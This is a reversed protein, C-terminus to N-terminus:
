PQVDAIPHPDRQRTTFANNRQLAERRAKFVDHHYTAVLEALQRGPSDNPDAAHCDRHRVSWDSLLCHLWTTAPKAAAESLELQPGRRRAEARVRMQQQHTANASRTLVRSESQGASGSPPLPPLQHHQLVQSSSAKPAEPAPLSTCLFVIAFLCSVDNFDPSTAVGVTVATTSSEAAFLQLSQVLAARRDQHFSCTLLTHEITEPWYVGDVGDICPCLYCARLEEEKLQPFKTQVQQTGVRATFPRRRVAGENPAADARAQIIRRALSMRLFLYPELFSKTKIRMYRRLETHQRAAEAQMLKDVEQQRHHNARIRLSAFTALRLQESWRNLAVLWQTPDPLLWFTVDEKLEVAPLGAPVAVCIRAREVTLPFLMLFVFVFVKAATSRIPTWVGAMQVHMEVLSNCFKMISDHSVHLREAAALAQQAWPQRHTKGKASYRNAPASTAQVSLDSVSLCLARFHTSDQPCTLLKAWFRLLLMDIRSQADWIGFECRLALSNIRRVRLLACMTDTVIRENDVWAASSLSGGAGAIAAITNFHCFIKGNAFVLSTFPSWDKFTFRAMKVAGLQKRAMGQARQWAKTWDWRWWIRTGLYDFEDVLEVPTGNIQLPSQRLLACATKYAAEDSGVTPVLMWKTKPVNVYLGSSLLAGNVCDFQLQLVPTNTSPLAGDDAFWISALRDDQTRAAPPRVSSVTPQGPAADHRVQFHPLPIGFLPVQGSALRAHGAEELALIVPDFYINFLLPSLPNGQLVGCEIPVSPEVVHQDIELLATAGDYMAQLTSLFRGGIGLDACRKWLLPHLVSDYAREIDIFCLQVNETQIQSRVTESLTFTQEPTGRKPRFGGQNHSLGSTTELFTELRRTMILSLLKCHGDSIGLGRYNAVCYVDSGKGKYHLLCRVKSWPEPCVGTNWVQNLLELHKRLEDQEFHRMVAIQMGDVGAGVEQATQVAKKLEDMTIDAELQKCQESINQRRDAIKELQTKVLPQIMQLDADSRNFKRRKDIHNIPYLADDAGKQCASNPLISEYQACIETNIAKM